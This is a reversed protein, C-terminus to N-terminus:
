TKSGAARELRDEIEGLYAALTNGSQEVASRIDREIEDLRALLAEKSEASQKELESLRGEMVSRLQEFRSAEAHDALERQSQLERSHRRSDLLATSQLFVVYVLFLLTILGVIALLILGLPAEVRTFGLTLTTPATFASWNFLAFIALLGLVLVIVLTRFYM